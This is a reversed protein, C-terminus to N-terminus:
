SPALVRRGLCRSRHSSCSEAPIDCNRVPIASAQLPTSRSSFKSCASLRSSSSSGPISSVLFGHRWPMKELKSLDAPSWMATYTKRSQVRTQAKEEPGSIISFLNKSSSDSGFPSIPPAFRLSKSTKSRCGRLLSQHIKSIVISRARDRRCGSPSNLVASSGGRPCSPCGIRNCVRWMEFNNDFVYRRKGRWRMRAVCKASFM